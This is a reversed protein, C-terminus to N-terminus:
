YICVNKNGLLELMPLIGPWPTWKSYVQGPHVTSLLPAVRDTPFSSMKPSRPYPLGSKSPVIPTMKDPYM